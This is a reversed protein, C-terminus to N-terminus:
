TDALPAETLRRTSNMPSDPTASANRRLRLLAANLEAGFLNILAHLSLWGLLALVAALDGYTDSKVLRDLLTTGALQIATYLLGAFAAGPWVVGWGPEASTLFRYMTALVGVNIGLGGIVILIQSVRPLGAQSVIAALAVTAIQSGGIAALGVLARVRQTM